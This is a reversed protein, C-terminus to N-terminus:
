LAGNDRDPDDDQGPVKDKKAFSYSKQKDKFQRQNLTFRHVPIERSLAATAGRERHRPRTRGVECFAPHAFSESILVAGLATRAHIAGEPSGRGRLAGVCAQM